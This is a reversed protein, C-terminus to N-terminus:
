VDRVRMQQGGPTSAAGNATAAGRLNLSGIRNVIAGGVADVAGRPSALTPAQAATEQVRFLRVNTKNWVGAAGRLILIEGTFIFGWLLSEYWGLSLPSWEFLHVRIPAPEIPLPSSSQIASLMAATDDSPINALREPLESLITLVTHLPLEPQWSEIWEPTAQFTGSLTVMPTLSHLSTMSSTRSLLPAGVPMKGRAKESMGRLQLPVTEDASSSVSAARSGQRSTHPAPSGPSQPTIPTSQDRSDEDDDDDGITFASDESIEQLHSAHQHSSLPSRVSDVSSTRALRSSAAEQQEKRQQAIRELEQQGAELSFERLNHFRRRSKVVAYVLNPNNQFQHELIANLAELLSQLLTHNTENALLFSPTSMSAFLSVLKSSTSRGLGELYPAINNIIALLAPYIAEHSGKGGTLLTYISTILYDAYTGHFNPIRISQPLTEQGKFRQNLSKGYTPEVSMTQLIFVCMRILGQKSPDARQELAYFLVLITFDHARETNIIFARFRKNCQLTEWFLMLMEPAWSISKQSGPLYSTSVQMPQNLIRMMGDVIFQFDQPRHLRGLFHRFYNKPKVGHQTEPIPYLVLALLLQLCYSVLLQRNDKFVMHDYPVRWSAPNYKLTTNMMSCLMSLVVQKDPITTLYTM